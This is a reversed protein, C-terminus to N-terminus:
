VFDSSSHTRQNHLVCCPSKHGVDLPSRRFYEQHARAPVLPLKVAADVGNDDTDGNLVIVTSDAIGIGRAIILDNSIITPRTGSPVKPPQLEKHEEYVKKHGGIKKNCDVAAKAGVQAVDDALNEKYFKIPPLLLSLSESGKDKYPLPEKSWNIVAVSAAILVSMKGVSISVQFHPTPSTSATPVAGSSPINASTSMRPSIEESPAKRESSSMTPVSRPSTSAAHHTRPPSSVPATRTSNTTAFTGTYGTGTSPMQPEQSDSKPAGSTVQPVRTACVMEPSPDGQGRVKARDMSEIVHSVYNITDKSWALM